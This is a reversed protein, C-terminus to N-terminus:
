LHPGQVEFVSEKAWPSGPTRQTGPGLSKDTEKELISPM